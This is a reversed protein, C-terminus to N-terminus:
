PVETHQASAAILLTPLLSLSCNRQIGLHSWSTKWVREAGFVCKGLAALAIESASRQLAPCIRPRTATASHVPPSPIAWPALLSARLSESLCFNPRQFLPRDRRLWAGKAPLCAAEKQAPLRGSEANRYISLAVSCAFSRDASLGVSRCVSLLLFSCRHLHSLCPRKDLRVFARVHAQVAGCAYAFVSSVCM